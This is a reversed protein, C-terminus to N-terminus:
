TLDLTVATRNGASDVSAVIRNKTDGADRIKVTRTNAGSLKAALASLMARLSQRPTVGTEVGNVRDLLADANQIATPLGVIYQAIVFFSEQIGVFSTVDQQRTLSANDCTWQVGIAAQIDVLATYIGPIPSTVGESSPSDLLGLNNYLQWKVNTQAAGFNTQLYIFYAM